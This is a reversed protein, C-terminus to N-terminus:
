WPWSWRKQSPPKSEPKSPNKSCSNYKADRAPCKSRPHRDFSCLFCKQKIAAVVVSDSLLAEVSSPEPPPMALAHTTVGHEVYSGAQNHSIEMARAREIATKLDLEKVEFLRQRIYNSQLGNIFSHRISEDRYEIVPNEATGTQRTALFNEFTRFWHNWLKAASDQEPNADFRSLKLIRDIATKLDLEKVESLRQRIYNSQLGNIFSHRISEDRYEIVPNEATGTQRTALFNEFTRFWHNWLKAASDQEPNADFRSLKLIRDKKTKQQNTTLYITTFESLNWSSPNIFLSIALSLKVWSIIPMAVFSFVYCIILIEVYTSYLLVYYLLFILEYEFVSRAAICETLAVM